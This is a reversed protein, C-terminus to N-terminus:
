APVDEMLLMVQLPDVPSPDFGHAVYFRQVEHDKAHVLLVRVGANRAVEDHTRRIADVLLSTGLGQGQHKRDVALRGLLVAPIPEHRPVGRSARITAAEYEVVAASLCYYGVVTPDGEIVVFTRSRGTVENALAHHVLWRDLAPRGCDFGRTVHARTIATPPGYTM